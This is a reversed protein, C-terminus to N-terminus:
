SAYACANFASRVLQAGDIRTERVHVLTGVASVALDIEVYSPPEDGETATWWFSLRHPADCEDLVRVRQGDDEFLEPLADWVEDPPAPLEVTREINCSM